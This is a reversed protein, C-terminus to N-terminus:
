RPVCLRERDLRDYEVSGDATLARVDVSIGTSNFYVLTRLGLDDNAFVLIPAYCAGRSWGLFTVLSDQGPLIDKREQLDVRLATQEIQLMGAFFTLTSTGENLLRIGYGVPVAVSGDGGQPVERYSYKRGGAVKAPDVIVLGQDVRPAGVERLEWLGGLMIALLAAIAIIVRGQKPGGTASAIEGAGNASRATWLSGATFVVLGLVLWLASATVYGFALSM